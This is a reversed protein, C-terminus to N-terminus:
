DISFKRFKYYVKGIFLKRNFGNGLRSGQTLQRPHIREPDGALTPIIIMLKTARSSIEFTLNALAIAIDLSAAVLRATSKLRVLSQQAVTAM